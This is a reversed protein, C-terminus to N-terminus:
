KDECLGCHGGVNGMLAFNMGLAFLAMDVYMGAIGANLGEAFGKSKVIIIAGLMILAIVGGSLRTLMGKADQSAILKGAIIGIGAGIEGLAVLWGVIEPLGMTEAFGPVTMVFIKMYGANLFVVALVLRM